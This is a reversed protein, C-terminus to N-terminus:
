KTIAHRSFECPEWEFKLQNLSTPSLFEIKILAQHCFILMVSLIRRWWRRRPSFFQIPTVFGWGSAFTLRGRLGLFRFSIWNTSRLWRFHVFLARKRHSNHVCDPTPPPPPRRKSTSKQWTPIRVSRFILVANRRPPLLVNVFLHFPSYFHSHFLPLSSVRLERLADHRTAM